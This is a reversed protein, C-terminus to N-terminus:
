RDRAAQEYRFIDGAYYVPKSDPRPDGKARLTIFEADLTRRFYRPDVAVALLSEPHMPCGLKILEHIRNFTTFYAEALQASGIFAMRDNVGGYNGWWPVHIGFSDTPPTFTQVFSDPRIRLFETFGCAPKVSLFYNWSQMLHWFQGAIASTPVSPAYPAHERAAEYSEHMKFEPQKVYQIFVHGCLERLREIDKAGPEDEVSVFFWPDAIKRYVQWRQSAYCRMFSRVNGSILVATSM